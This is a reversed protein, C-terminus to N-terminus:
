RRARCCLFGCLRVWALGLWAGLEAWVLWVLWFGVGVWIWLRVWRFSAPDSGRLPPMHGSRLGSPAAHSLGARFHRFPSGLPHLLGAAVAGCIFRAKAGSTGIVM